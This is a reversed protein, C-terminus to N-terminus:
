CDVVEAGYGRSPFVSYWWQALPTPPHLAIATVPSNVATFHASVTSKSYEAIGLSIFRSSVKDNSDLYSLRLGFTIPKKLRDFVKPNQPKMELLLSRLDSIQLQNIQGPALLAPRDDTLEWHSCRTSTAEGKTETWHLGVGTKMILEAKSGRNITVIEIPSTDPSTNSISVLIQVNHSEWWSNIAQYGSLVFAITATM